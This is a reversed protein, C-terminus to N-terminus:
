PLNLWARVPAAGWFVAALGGAALAPAFPLADKRGGRRTVLFAVAAVGGLVFAMFLALASVEWGFRGAYLGIFAALKVDGMGMGASVIAIVFFLGFAAASAGYSKTLITWDRKVTSLIGIWLAAAATAPLVIVNPVRRVDLDILAIVLLVAGGAAVFAAAEGGGFRAVSAVGLGATGAEVLPYRFSIRARCNRCRGRLILFSLIPVNDWPKLQVGCSPCASPPSVISLRRPVRYVVVNLFSGVMAGALGALLGALTRSM